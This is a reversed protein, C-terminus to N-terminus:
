GHLVEELSQGRKVIRHWLFMYGLNLEEAWAALCQTKGRFAVMRSRRSNRTQARQTAWICNEKSYPGDNNKREISCGAPRTGMDTLFTEFGHPGIWSADVTIGRGGYDKYNKHRPNTCREVLALWSYYEPSRQKNNRNHGHKTRMQSTLKRNFCGCSV